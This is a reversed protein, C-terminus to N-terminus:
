DQFLDIKYNAQTMISAYVQDMFLVTDLNKDFKSGEFLLSYCGDNKISVFDFKHLQLWSPKAQEQDIMCQITHYKGEQAMNYNVKLGQDFPYKVIIHKNM